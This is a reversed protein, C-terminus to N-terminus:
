RSPATCRARSRRRRATRPATRAGSPPSRRPSRPPPRSRTACRRRRRGGARRGRAGVVLAYGVAARPQFGGPLPIVPVGDRAPASPSRAARRPSSARRAARRRTTTPRSPRRRTARTARAAARPAGARGVAAARLRRRVVIPRTAGTASRARARAAGGVASGGMGAVILGGPADVPAVGASEVRWLADRLHTPCTSSRPPRARRTSRRSPTPTSRAPAMLVPDRRRPAVRRPLDARRQRRRQGRRADVGEGLVRSATSTATTASGRRRAGVICGSCRATRASRRARSCSRASSSTDRASPSAASSCSAAASGRAPASGAAPRSSRRVPHDPGAIEVDGAVAAFGDGMRAAVTPARGHGRPHRVHGAPLARADRHGDLLGRRRLRLPRRRRAAPLRRARDLRARGPELLDLVSRELVYAGASINHTDIQDARPSRSSSAHGRRRRRAARPRLRSPDEVPYSRRADRARRDGRAPRDARHPRHRDARRRQADPLARRAADEAFKLAGGTGLPQPEEVYRSGCGSRRQRRRARRARRRGPLRLVHDRRRRRPRAALRAHLRHVAPRRAPRGAQPVTSTLPRLRTGEGGALILAQM